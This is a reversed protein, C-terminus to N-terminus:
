GGMGSIVCGILLQTAIAALSRVVGVASHASTTPARPDRFGKAFPLARAFCRPPGGRSGYMHLVEIVLQVFSLLQHDLLGIVHAPDFQVHAM